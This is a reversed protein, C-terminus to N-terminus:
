TTKLFVFLQQLIVLPIGDRPMRHSQTHEKLTTVYQLPVDTKRIYELGWFHRWFNWSTIHANIDQESRVERARFELFRYFHKKTVIPFERFFAFGDEPKLVQREELYRIFNRFNSRYTAVTTPKRTELYEVARRFAPKNNFFKDLRLFVRHWEHKKVSIFFIFWQHVTYDKFPELDLPLFFTGNSMNRDMKVCTERRFPLVRDGQLVDTWDYTTKLSSDNRYRPIEGKFTVM